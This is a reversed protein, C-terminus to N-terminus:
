ITGYTARLLCRIHHSEFRLNQDKKWTLAQEGPGKDYCIQFQIINDADDYWVYLDVAADAFWRRRPEGEIQRINTIEQLM